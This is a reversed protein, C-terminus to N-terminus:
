QARRGTGLKIEFWNWFIHQLIMLSPHTNMDEVLLAPNNFGRSVPDIFYSSLYMARRDFMMGNLNPTDSYLAFEVKDEGFDRKWDKLYSMSAKIDDEHKERTAATATEYGELGKTQTFKFAELCTKEYFGVLQPDLMLVRLKVGEKTLFEEIADQYEDKYTTFSYAIVCIERDCKRIKNEIWKRSAKKTRSWRTGYSTKKWLSDKAAPLPNTASERALQNLINFLAETDYNFINHTKEKAEYATEFEKVAEVLKKPSNTPIKCGLTRAIEGYLRIIDSEKNAEIAQLESLPNPLDVVKLGSHCVPVVPIGKIWGAGLEFNIWPRDISHKSCLVIVIKSQKLAVDVSELWKAGVPISADDSSVFIKVKGPFVGELDAKLAMALESEETIFSIFLNLKSM